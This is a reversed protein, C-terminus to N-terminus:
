PNETTCRIERGRRAKNTARGHLVEEVGKKRPSFQEEADKKEEEEENPVLKNAIPVQVVADLVIKM